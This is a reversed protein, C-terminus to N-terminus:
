YRAMNIRQAEMMKRNTEERLKAMAEAGRLEARHSEVAMVLEREESWDPKLFYTLNSSSTM